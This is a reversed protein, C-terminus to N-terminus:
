AEPTVTATFTVMSTARDLHVSTMVVSTDAPIRNLVVSNQNYTIGFKMGNVFIVNGQAFTGSILGTSTLITFSDVNTVPVFSGLSVVLNAGGLNTTGTVQLQDYQTGVTTGF